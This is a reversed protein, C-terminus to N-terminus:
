ERVLHEVDLHGGITRVQEADQPHRALHCHEVAELQPRAM